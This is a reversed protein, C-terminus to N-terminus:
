APPPPPGRPPTPSPSTPPRTPSTACAAGRPVDLLRRDPPSQDRVDLRLRGPPQGRPGGPLRRPVEPLRARGPHFATTVCTTGNFSTTGLISYGTITHATSFGALGNHCQACALQTLDQRNAPNLHCANCAIGAHATGPGRPFLQEHNAPAGGAGDGHCFLCAADLSGKAAVAQPFTLGSVTANVAVHAAQCAGDSNDHLGDATVVTHCGTCTTVAFDTAFLKHPDTRLAPHCSLCAGGAAGSHLTNTLAFGAGAVAAAAAAHGAVTTPIVGDGHCRVCLASATPVDVTANVAAFGPVQAHGTTTASQDHPHCGACGLTTRNSTDLHCDGCRAVTTGAADQHPLPFILAHNTALGSPGHCANCALDVAADPRTVNAAALTNGFAAVTALYNAAAAPIGGHFTGVDSPSDHWVGPRIQVHCHTCTFVTFTASPTATGKDYHCQDCAPGVLANGAHVAGGTIQFFRTSHDDLSPMSLWPGASQGKECGALLLAGTALALLTPRRTM